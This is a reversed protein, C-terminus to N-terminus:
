GDSERPPTELGLHAMVRRREAAPMAALERDPVSRARRIRRQQYVSWYTISGDRHFATNLNM